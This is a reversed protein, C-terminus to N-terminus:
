SSLGIRHLLRDFRPDSRLSDLLADMRLEVLQPSREHYARDLWEFAQDRQGLLAYAVAFDFPSVYSEHAMRTLVDLRWRWVGAPGSAETAQRLAAVDEPSAGALAAAKEFAEVAEPHRGQQWLALGLPTYVAAFNEDLEITKRYQDVADDYRRAYFYWTGLDASIIPSLPDLERAQQIEKLADDMRGMAVLYDAYWQHATSYSPDLEIARKFEREAGPWDWDYDQLISALSTHGEALSEDLRLAERAEAKAQPVVEPPPRLGYSSLLLYADALGAHAVAYGPDLAAAQALYQIAKGLGEETRRNLYYRGKLYAEHAAASQTPPRAIALGRAELLKPMLTQAIGKAIKTQVAFVDALEADYDDAWQHTQDSVRNLQATVRVRQGERRVSGELIYHVGLEKGIQRISRKTDRFKMVSTRAIVGLRPPDLRGLQTIMEETMGDTFYIQEKDASLNVFPLVALM